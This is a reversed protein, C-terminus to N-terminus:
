SRTRALALRVGIVRRRTGRLLKTPSTGHACRSMAPTPWPCRGRRVDALAAVPQPTRSSTSSASASAAYPEAGHVEVQGVLVSSSRRVTRSKAACRPRAPRRPARGRRLAEGVLDDRLSPSSPSIPIGNGSSYPPARRRCARRVREGDLLQRADVRLTAIVIHACVESPCAASRGTRSRPASPAVPQRLQARARLSPAKPSVSGSAPESAPLTRVRARARRRRTPRDVAGLLEDGVGAGVDGPQTAIVARSRRRRCLSIELRM